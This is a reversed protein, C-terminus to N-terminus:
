ETTNTKTFSDALPANMSGTRYGLLDLAVYLYGLQRFAAAILERQAILADFVAPDTEIRALDQHVRVRVGVLGLSHLYTEAKGVREIEERTLRTDYPFRTALCPAAPKNWNPLGLARALSRIEPKTFGAEALPSRVGLEQLARIGPRYDGADDANTGDALWAIGQEQALARLASFRRLKCHFCRDPPNASFVPDALDDMAVVMHRFGGRKALEIALRTEEPSEVPSQVTVALMQKELVSHAVWAVLSSDVGGSFGIIVSGMQRLIEQLHM